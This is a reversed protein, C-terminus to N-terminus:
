SDSSVRAPEREKELACHRGRGAAGVRHDGTCAAHDEPFVPLPVGKLAGDVRRYRGTVRREERANDRRAARFQGSSLIAVWEGAKQQESCGRQTDRKVWSCLWLSEGRPDEDREPSRNSGGVVEEGRGGM